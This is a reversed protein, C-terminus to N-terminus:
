LLVGRRTWTCYWDPEPGGYGYDYGYGGESLAEIEVTFGAGDTGELLLRVLLGPPVTFRPPEALAFEADASHDVALVVMEGPELDILWEAGSVVKLADTREPDWHLWETDPM